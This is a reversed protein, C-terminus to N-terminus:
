RVSRAPNDPAQYGPADWSLGEGVREEQRNIGKSHDHEQTWARVFIAEGPELSNVLESPAEGEVVEVGPRSTLQRIAAPKGALVAVRPSVRQLVRLGDILDDLGGRAFVLAEARVM